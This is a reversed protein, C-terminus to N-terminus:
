IYYGERFNSRIKARTQRTDSGLLESRERNGSQQKRKSLVKKMAAEEDIDDLVIEGAALESDVASPEPSTIRELDSFTQSCLIKKTRLISSEPVEWAPLFDALEDIDGAEAFQDSDPDRFTAAIASQVQAIKFKATRTYRESREASWGGLVDRDAKSFGLAGAGSPM